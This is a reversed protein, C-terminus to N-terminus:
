TFHPLIIGDNVLPFIVENYFDIFKHFPHVKISQFRLKSSVSVVFLEQKSVKALKIMFRRFFYSPESNDYLKRIFYDLLEPDGGTLDTLLDSLKLTM